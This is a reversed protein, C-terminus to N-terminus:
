HHMHLLGVVDHYGHCHAGASLPFSRQHTTYIHLSRQSVLPANVSVELRHVKWLSEQLLNIDSFNFCNIQVTCIEAQNLHTDIM